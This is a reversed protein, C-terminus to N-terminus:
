AAWYLILFALAGAIYSPRDLATFLIPDEHVAGKVTLRWMRAQWLLLVPLLLWLLQPKTYLEGVAGSTFYLGLVLLSCLGAAWGATILSPLHVTTYGRGAAASRGQKALNQLEAVRKILALSTFFFAAFAFLWLSTAIGTAASGAFIRLVYLAALILIDAIIVRKFFWSYAMNAGVYILLVAFFAKPLFLSIIAAATFLSLMMGAATDISILGAALPRHQKARHLRDADLDMMDNLLYIGSATLSFAAWGLISAAWHNPNNLEHASAVPVLLLINKIWQHVRIAPILVPLALYSTRPFVRVVHATQRVQQVVSDPANVVVAGGASEWIPLDTRSNGAYIFGGRGYKAVLPAIKNRGSRNHVADSAIIHSFLGVHGAVKRAIRVNSGTALCLQRGSAHEQRLWTLLPKNYPLTAVPLQVRRAIQDKFHALGMKLWWLSRIITLPHQKVLKVYAELLTDTRVLTGDLDVCLPLNQPLNPM